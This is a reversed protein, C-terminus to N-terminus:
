RLYRHLYHLSICLRQFPESTEARANSPGSFHPFLHPRTHPLKFLDLELVILLDVVFSGQLVLVLIGVGV